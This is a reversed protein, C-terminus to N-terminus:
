RSLDYALEWQPAPPAELPVQYVLAWPGVLRWPSGPSHRLLPFVQCPQIDLLVPYSAMEHTQQPSSLGILNHTFNLNNPNWHSLIILKQNHQNTEEKEVPLLPIGPCFPSAPVLTWPGVPTLPNAPVEKHIM